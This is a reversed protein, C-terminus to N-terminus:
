SNRLDFKTIGTLTFFITARRASDFDSEKSPQRIIMTLEDIM